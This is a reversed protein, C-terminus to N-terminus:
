SIQRKYVDLHTYSVPTIETESQLLQCKKKKKQVERPLCKAQKTKRYRVRPRGIDGTGFPRYLFAVKPQRGDEM